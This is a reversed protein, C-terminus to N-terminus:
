TGFRLNLVTIVQGEAIHFSLPGFRYVAGGSHSLGGAGRRGHLGSLKALSGLAFQHHLPNL